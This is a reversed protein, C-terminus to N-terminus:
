GGDPIARVLHWGNVCNPYAITGDAHQGLIRSFRPASLIQPASAGDCAENPTGGIADRVNLSVETHSSDGALAGSVARSPAHAGWLQGFARFRRTHRGWEAEPLLRTRPM